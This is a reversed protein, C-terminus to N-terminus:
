YAYEVSFWLKREDNAFRDRHYDALKALAKIGHGFDRGFQVDLEDGYAISGHAASFEHWVALWSAAGHKGGIGFWIDDLGNAPTTLFRDAWGNFAHLTALPTQFAVRGSGDLREFGVRATLEGFQLTPELLWYSADFSAPNNAYEVQRATEASWGFSMGEGLKGTGTWRLGFTRTSLARVDHNDLWYAYATLAGLPLAQQVNLAHADLDWEGQPNHEGFVRHVRDVYAYRIRPGHEAISWAADIADFTQENQRWGVNGIFRHNDFILRQRGLIVTLPGQAYRAWAQNLETEDPDAVVPLQTRGNTTSNFDADFLHTVYEGEAFLTWGADLEQRWGFRARLTTADAEAAFADDDVNEYRLRLDLTPGSREVQAALPAAFLALSLALPLRCMSAIM